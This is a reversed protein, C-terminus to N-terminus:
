QLLSLVAQPLQNAQALMAVGAQQLVQAKTMAATEAAFDADMIRARAASINESVNMLNSITSEFRNQIAGLEGRISGVQSLAGDIVAIADNAGTVTSIDVADMSTLSPSVNSLGAYALDDGALVYTVASNLELIGRTEVEFTGNADTGGTTAGSEDVVAADTMATDDVDIAYAGIRTETLTLTDSTADYTASLTTSTPDEANIAAALLNGVVDTQDGAAAAVVVLRENSSVSTGTVDFVYTLDGIDLKDGLEIENTAPTDGNDAIIGDTVDLVLDRTNYGTAATTAATLGTTNQINTAVTADAANGATIKIDRGDTTSLSLAGTSADATATVGTQNSVSNIASAANQGQGVADDSAAISGIVVGNIILDGNNLAQGAVPADTSTFSNSAIATVGTEDSVANIATAKATASYATVGASSTQISAGVEIGNITFGAGDFADTTVSTGTAQYSGLDSTKAGTIGFSITQSADAGVQFQASTFSGDLIGKGNFKTIEAIRTLESLLQSTEAQLASRDSASNTDNASQVSLERIRQLLNTTEQLAGEATQALSIGDNANRIAQNLGRVQAGMRTGIALGAADDKASNIRLGSSLRQLSKNLLGQTKGLNRQANLAAINTNITMGM